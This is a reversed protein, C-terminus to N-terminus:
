LYLHLSLQLSEQLSVIIALGRNFRLPNHTLIKPFIKRFIASSQLFNELFFRLFNWFITSIKWFIASFNYFFELFIGFFRRFIGM